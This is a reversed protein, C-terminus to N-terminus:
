GSYKKRTLLVVILLIVVTLLPIQYGLDNNMNQDDYTSEPNEISIFNDCNDPILDNDLDLDDNFGPCKDLANSVGDM